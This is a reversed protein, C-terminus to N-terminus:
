CSVNLCQLKRLIRTFTCLLFVQIRFEDPGRNVRDILARVDSRSGPKLYIMHKDLGKTEVVNVCVEVVAPIFPLVSSQFFVCLM